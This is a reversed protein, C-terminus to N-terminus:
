GAPRGPAGCQFRGAARRDRRSRLDAGSQDPVGRVAAGDGDAGARRGLAADPDAHAQGAPEGHDGARGKVTEFAELLRARAERNLSGIGQRLRQIAGELDAREAALTDLKEQVEQSEIEARLNVPGMNERERRLREIKRECDDLPPLEADPELGAVELVKQPPCEMAERVERTLREIAERAHEAAAERRVLDERAAQVTAQVQKLARDAEALETQAAALREVAGARGQEAETIRGGLEVRRAAIEEPRHKLDEIAQASADRREALQAM